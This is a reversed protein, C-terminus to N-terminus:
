QIITCRLLLIINWESRGETRMKHQWLRTGVEQRGALSLQLFLLNIFGYFNMQRPPVSPTGPPRPALSVSKGRLTTEWLHQWLEVIKEETRGWQQRHSRLSRSSLLPMTLWVTKTDRIAVEWKEERVGGSRLAKNVRCDRTAILQTIHGPPPPLHSASVQSM